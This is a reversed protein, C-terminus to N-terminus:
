HNRAQALFYPMFGRGARQAELRRRRYEANFQHLVGADMAREIALEIKASRQQVRELVLAHPTLKIGCRAAAAPVDGTAKAAKAVLKADKAKCWWALATDRLSNSVFVKGTPSVCVAALDFAAVYDREVTTLPQITPM